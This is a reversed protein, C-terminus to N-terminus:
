VEESQKMRREMDRTTQELFAPLELREVVEHVIESKYAQAQNRMREALLESLRKETREFAAHTSDKMVKLAEKWESRLSDALAVSNDSSESMKKVAM